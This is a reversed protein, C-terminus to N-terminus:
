EWELIGGDMGMGDIMGMGGEMGTDGMDTGGDVYVEVPSAAVPTAREPAYYEEDEATVYERKRVACPPTEIAEAEAFREQESRGGERGDSARGAKASCFELRIRSFTNEESVNKM